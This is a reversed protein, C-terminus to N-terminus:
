EHLTNFYASAQTTYPAHVTLCNITIERANKNVEAHMYKSQAEAHSFTILNSHSEVGALGRPTKFLVWLLRNHIREFNGSFLSFENM